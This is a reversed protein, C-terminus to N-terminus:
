NGQQSQIAQRVYNAADESPVFRIKTLWEDDKTTLASMVQELLVVEIKITNAIDPSDKKAADVMSQIQEKEFFFPIITEDNPDKVTLYGKDPGGTAVFLPVGGKYEQGAPELLQQAVQVETATPVYQVSLGDEEQASAIQLKYVEPLPVGMVKFAQSQDPNEQQFQDYAKKADDESVFALTFKKNTENQQLVLPLGEGNVIMFVPIPSLVRTIESEPIGLAKLTSGLWSTVVVSGILGLTTARRLLSKMM